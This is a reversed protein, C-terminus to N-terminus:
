NESCTPVAKSAHNRFYFFTIDPTRVTMTNASVCLKAPPSGIFDVDRL